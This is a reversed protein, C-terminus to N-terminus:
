VPRSERRARQITDRVVALKPACQKRYGKASQPICRYRARDAAEKLDHLPAVMSPMCRKLNRSREAHSQSHIGRAAFYAEVYHVAAYFSAVVAWDAHRPSVRLLMSVLTENHRAQILHEDQSPM